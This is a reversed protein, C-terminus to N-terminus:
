CIGLLISHGVGSVRDNSSHPLMALPTRPLPTLTMGLLMSQDVCLCTPLSCSVEDVQTPELGEQVEAYDEPEAHQM